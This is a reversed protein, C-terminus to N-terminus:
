IFITRWMGSIIYYLTCKINHQEPRLGVRWESISNQKMEKLSTMIKLLLYIYIMCETHKQSICLEKYLYHGVDTMLLVFEFNLHPMYNWHYQVSHNKEFQFIIVPNNNLTNNPSAMIIQPSSHPLLVAILYNTINFAVLFLFCIKNKLFYPMSCIVWTLSKLYLRAPVWSSSWISKITEM